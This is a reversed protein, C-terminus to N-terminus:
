KVYWGGLHGYKYKKYATSNQPTKVTCKKQSYKLGDTFYSLSYLYGEGYSNYCEVLDYQHNFIAVRM